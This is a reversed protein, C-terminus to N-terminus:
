FALFVLGKPAAMKSFCGNANLWGGKQNHPDRRPWIQCVLPVNSKATTRGHEGAGMDVWPVLRVEQTVSENAGGWTLM